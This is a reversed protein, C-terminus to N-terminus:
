LYSLKSYWKGQPMVNTGYVALNGHSISTNAISYLIIASSRGGFAAMRLGMGMYFRHM